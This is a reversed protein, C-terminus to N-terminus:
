LVTHQLMSYANLGGLTRVLGKGFPVTGKSPEFIGRPDARFGVIHEKTGRFWCIKVAM